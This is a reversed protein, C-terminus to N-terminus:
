PLLIVSLAILGDSVRLGRFLDNILINRNKKTIPPINLETLKAVLPPVRIGWDDMNSSPSKTHAVSKILDFPPAVNRIKVLIPSIAEAVFRSTPSSPVSLRATFKIPVNIKKEINDSLKM